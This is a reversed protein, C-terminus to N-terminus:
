PQRESLRTTRGALRLESRGVSKEVARCVLCFEAACLRLPVVDFHYAYKRRDAFEDEM